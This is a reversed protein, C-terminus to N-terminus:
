RRYEAWRYAAAAWAMGAGVATMVLWQGHELKGQRRAWRLALPLSSAVTNGYLPYTLVVKESPLGMRAAAERILTSSAQHPVLWDVDALSIGAAEMARQSAMVMRDVAWTHVDSFRLNIYQSGNALEECSLPRRSGGGPICVYHGLHGDSGTVFSRFGWGDPVQRVVVAGAGDGFVTASLWDSPHICFATTDAGVVLATEYGFVKMLGTAVQVSDMFGTCASDLQLFKARSGLNAQVYAASPPMRHDSTVTAMVILDVDDVRIGADAVAELAAETALDSTAQGPLARHRTSGGHRRRVWEDLSRGGKEERSYGTAVEVAHNDIVKEPLYGGIGVIGVNM